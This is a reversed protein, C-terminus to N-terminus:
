LAKELLTGLRESSETIGRSMTNALATDRAEVSPFVSRNPMRTRGDGIEMELDAPGLWHKVRDPDRHARFVATPAAFERTVEIFPTGPQATVTTGSM